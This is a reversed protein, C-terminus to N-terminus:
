KSMHIYSKSRTQMRTRPSWKTKKCQGRKWGQDTWTTWRHTRVSEWGMSDSPVGIDSNEAHRSRPESRAGPPTRCGSARSPDPTTDVGCFWPPEPDLSQFAFRRIGLGYREVTSCHVPKFFCFSTPRSTYTHRQPATRTEPWHNRSPAPPLAVHTVSNPLAELCRHAPPACSFYWGVFMSTSSASGRIPVSGKKKGRHSCPTRWKSSQLPPLPIYETRPLASNQLPVLTARQPM